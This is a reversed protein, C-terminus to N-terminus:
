TCLYKTNALEKSIENRVNNAKNNCTKKDIFQFKYAANKYVSPMSFKLYVFLANLTPIVAGKGGNYLTIINNWDKIVAM